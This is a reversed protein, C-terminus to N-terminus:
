HNAPRDHMRLLEEVTTHSPLPGQAFTAQLDLGELLDEDSEISNTLELLVQRPVELNWRKIAATTGREDSWVAKYWVPPLADDTM